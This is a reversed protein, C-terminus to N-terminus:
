QDQSVFPRRGDCAPYRPCGWFKEGAHRGRKATRIRLPSGCKPCAATVARGIGTNTHHRALRRARSSNGWWSLPRAITAIAATALAFALSGGLLILSQKSYWPAHIDMWGARGAARIAYIDVYLILIAMGALNKLFSRM